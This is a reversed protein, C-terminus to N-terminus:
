VKLSVKKCNFDVIALDVDMYIKTSARRFLSTGSFSHIITRPVFNYESACSSFCSYTHISEVSIKFGYTLRIQPLKVIGYFIKEIIQEWSLSFKLNGAFRKSSSCTKTFVWLIQCLLISCSLTCFRFYSGLQDSGSQIKIFTKFSLSSRM